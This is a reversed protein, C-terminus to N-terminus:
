HITEHISERCVTINPGRISIFEQAIVAIEFFYILCLM